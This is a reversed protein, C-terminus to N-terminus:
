PLVRKFPKVMVSKYVDGVVYPDQKVWAQADELSTFDIVLLSGTFGASGPDEADIAPLPGAVLVRGDVALKTIRALHAERAAGRKELSDPHDEGVIMYWMNSVGFNHIMGTESRSVEKSYFNFLESLVVEAWSGIIADGM